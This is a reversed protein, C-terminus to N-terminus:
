GDHSERDMGALREFITILASADKGGLGAARGMEFIQLALNPLMLPVKLSRGLSTEMVMDKYSIDLRVGEFDRSIMRKARYTFAPSGGTSGGIVELMMKPDLGAKVGLVLGEIAAISNVKYLMNNVLKMLLGQGLSGVHIIESTMSVLVPRCADLSATDGGVLAKLTGDKAGQIMGTVPADLIHVGSAALTEQWQTISAPDITSMCLVIDDKQAGDIIGGPLLTVRKSQETTDVMTIVIRAQRAVDDPGNAVRAGIAAFQATKTQDLDYVVLHFGAKLVNLAM